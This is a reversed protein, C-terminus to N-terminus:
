RLPAGCASQAQPDSYVTPTDSTSSTRPSSHFRLGLSSALCKVRPIVVASDPISRSLM